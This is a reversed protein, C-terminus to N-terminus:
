EYREVTVQRVLKASRLAAPCRLLRVAVDCAVCVNYPVVSVGKGKRAGYRQVERVMVVLMGRCLPCYTARRM